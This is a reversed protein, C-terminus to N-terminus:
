AVGALCGVGPLYGAGALCGRREAMFQDLSRGGFALAAQRAVFELPVARVYTQVADSGWRGLLQIAWLELGLRALGQAGTVRLTHGTIADIGYRSEM